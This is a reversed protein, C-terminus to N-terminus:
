DEEVKNGTIPDGPMSLIVASLAGKLAGLSGREWFKKGGKFARSQEVQTPSELL